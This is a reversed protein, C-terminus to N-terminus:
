EKLLKRFCVIQEVQVYGLRTHVRQSLANQLETDSAMETCGKGRAWDEAAEILKRGVGKKRHEPMVYWGELYGVPSTECGEAYGRLSVELWGIFGGKGDEAVLIQFREPHALQYTVESRDSGESWLAERLPWYVEVEHAELPRVKM